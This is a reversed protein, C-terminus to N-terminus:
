VLLLDSGIAAVAVDGQSLEEGRVVGDWESESGKQTFAERKWLRHSNKFISPLSNSVEQVPYM